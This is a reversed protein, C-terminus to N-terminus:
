DTATLLANIADNYIMAGSQFIRNAEWSHQTDTQSTTSLMLGNLQTLAAYCNLCPCLEISPASGKIFLTLGDNIMRLNIRSGCFDTKTNSNNPVAGHGSAHAPLVSTYTLVTIITNACNQGM